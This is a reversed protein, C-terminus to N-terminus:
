ERKRAGRPSVRGDLTVTKPALEQSKIANAFFVKAAAVDRKGSLRFDVTEGEQEVAHYHHGVPVEKPADWLSKL